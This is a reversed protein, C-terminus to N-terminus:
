DKTVPNADLADALPRFYLPYLALVCLTLVVNAGLIVALPQPFPGIFGPGNFYGLYPLSAIALCVLMVVWILKRFKQM